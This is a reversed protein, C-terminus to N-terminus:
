EGGIVFIFVYLNATLSPASHPFYSQQTATCRHLRLLRHRAEATSSSQLIRAALHHWKDPNAIEVLRGVGLNSLEDRICIPSQYRKSTAYADRRSLQDM